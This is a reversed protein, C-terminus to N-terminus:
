DDSVIYKKVANGALEQGEVGNSFKLVKIEYLYHKASSTNADVYSEGVSGSIPNFNVDAEAVNCIYIDAKVNQMIGGVNVDATNHVNITVPVGSRGNLKIPLVGDVIDSLPVISSSYGALNVNVGGPDNSIYLNYTGPIDMNGTWLPVPMYSKTKPSADLIPAKAIVKLVFKRQTDDAEELNWDVNFYRTYVLDAGSVTPNNYMPYVVYNVGISSLIDAPSPANKLREAVARCLVNAKDIDLAKRNTYSSTIFLQLLSLSIISLVAFSAIVEVMTFGKNNNKMM